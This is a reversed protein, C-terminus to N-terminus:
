YLVTRTWVYYKYCVGLVRTTLFCTSTMHTSCSRCPISELLMSCVSSQLSVSITTLGIGSNSISPNREPMSSSHMHGRISCELVMLGAPIYNSKIGDEQKHFEDSITSITITTKPPSGRLRRPPALRSYLLVCFM